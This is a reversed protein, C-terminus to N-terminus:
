SNEEKSNVTLEVLPNEGGGGGGGSLLLPKFSTKLIFLM